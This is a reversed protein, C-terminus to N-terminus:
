RSEAAESLSARLANARRIMAGAWRLHMGTGVSGFINRLSADDVVGLARDV